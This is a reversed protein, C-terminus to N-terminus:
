SIALRPHTPRACLRNCGAPGLRQALTDAGAARDAAIDRANNAHLIGCALLAPPLSLLLPLRMASLDAGLALGTALALLPGFCLFM